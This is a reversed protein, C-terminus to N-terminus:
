GPPGNRQLRRQIDDALRGRFMEWLENANTPNGFLLIVVFLERLQSGSCQTACADELCEKWELDDELLGRQRCADQFTQCVRGDHLTRLDVFSRAGTVHSLLIRLYFKEGSSPHATYMRGITEDINRQRAQWTKSRKDWVYRKPFDPYLLQRAEPYLENAEFWATLTTQAQRDMAVQPAGVQYVVYQQGELHVALRVVAPKHGQLPYEFMRWCAESSGIYRGNVFDSIEDVARPVASNNGGPVTATTASTSQAMNASASQNSITPAPNASSIQAVACDHGKFVYKFLYKVARVSSCVEVNIHCDYRLLLHPNYPVIWSNDVWRGHLQVRNSGVTYTKEQEGHTSQVRLNIVRTNSADQPAPRRYTMYGETNEFTSDSYPKPFGFRCRGEGTHCRHSGLTNCPSHVLSEVVRHFLRPHRDPDPIEASTYKCYQEPSIQDRLILLIHAHPLGRKQFEVVYCYGDVIGFVHEELIEHLLQRLKSRFVRAVIDPRNHPETGSSRCEFVIEEWGPNCTMTLFLHPKGLARVIAMCNQYCQHMYRPGGTFSSSLYVRQGVAEASNDGAAIADTLGQLVDGRLHQQRQRQHRLQSNEVKAYSDVVYQQFLRGGRHLLPRLMPTFITQGSAQLCPQRERVMIRFAYFERQTVRKNSERCHPIDIEYGFDGLPFLLVYSIQVSPDFVYIQCFKPEVGEAPLLSGIRHVVQGQIVFTPPGTSIQERQKVGVSVFSLASNYARINDLFDKSQSTTGSMLQWLEVPPDASLPALIVKGHACCTPFRLPDSRRSQSLAESQWFTAGCHVCVQNMHGLSYLSCISESLIDGLNACYKPLRPGGIQVRRTPQQGSPAVTVQHVPQSVTLSQSQHQRMQVAISHQSQNFTNVSADDAPAIDNPVPSVPTPIHEQVLFEGVEMPEVISAELEDVGHNHQASQVSARSLSRTLIRAVNVIYIQPPVISFTDLLNVCDVDPAIISFFGDGCEDLGFECDCVGNDSDECIEIDASEDLTAASGDLLKNTIRNNRKFLPATVQKHKHLILLCCILLFQSTGLQPIRLL